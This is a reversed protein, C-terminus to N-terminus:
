KNKTKQMNAHIQIASISILRTREVARLKYVNENLAHVAIFNYPNKSTENCQLCRLARVLSVIKKENCRSQYAVRTKGGADGVLSRDNANDATTTKKNRPLLNGNIREIHHQKIDPKNGQLSSARKVHSM